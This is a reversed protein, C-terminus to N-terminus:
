FKDLMDMDQPSLFVLNRDMKSLNSTVLGLLIHGKKSKENWNSDLRKGNEAYLTIKLIHSMERTNVLFIVNNKTTGPLINIFKHKKNFKINKGVCNIKYSITKCSKANDNEVMPCHLIILNDEIHRFTKTIM